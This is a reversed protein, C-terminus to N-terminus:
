NIENMTLTKGRVEDGATTIRLKMFVYSESVWVVTSIVIGWTKTSPKSGPSLKVPETTLTSPTVVIYSTTSKIPVLDSNTQSDECM